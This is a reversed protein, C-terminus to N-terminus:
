ANWNVERDATLSTPCGTLESCVNTKNTCENSTIVKGHLHQAAADRGWM